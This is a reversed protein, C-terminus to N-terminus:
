GYQAASTLSQYHCRRQDLVTDTQHFATHRHTYETSLCKFIDKFGLLDIISAKQLRRREKAMRRWGQVREM